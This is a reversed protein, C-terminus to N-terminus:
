YGRFVHDAELFLIMSPKEYNPLIIDNVFHTLQNDNTDQHDYILEIKPDNLGKIKEVVNDLKKPFKITQARIFVNPRTAGRPMTGFFLYKIRM